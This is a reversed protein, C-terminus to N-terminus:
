ASMIFGTFPLNAHCLNIFAHTQGIPQWSADSISGRYYCNGLTGIQQENGTALDVSVIPTNNGFYEDVSIVANWPTGDAMWSIHGNATDIMINTVQQATVSQAYCALTIFAIAISHRIHKVINTPKALNTM